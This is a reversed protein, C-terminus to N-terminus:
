YFQDFHTQGPPVGAQLLMQQVAQAMAPPGAFYVECQALREGFLAQAAAHVFGTPGDFGPPPQSVFGHYRIRAGFGPLLALEDRGCLDAPTRGGYVFDLRRQALQPEAAAGRAISLMPALGSGGALCVIDRPAERRLWAMGYPGDVEVADGPQLEFLRASGAGGPVRRVQFDWRGDSGPLNSMSYARPGAVGPLHLLAYQGPQFPLPRALEFSFEWLDHTLPRRAALRAAGRVPRHPPRYRDGLRVKLTCDARPRTQCALLRGRQRDRESLGPAGPWADEVAGDVLEVRCNGCAGVNCEYPHGLGARQAARLLTDDEACDYALESGALRVRHTRPATASASEVPAATGGDMSLGSM